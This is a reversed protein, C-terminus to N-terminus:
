KFSGYNVLIGSLTIYIHVFVGYTVSTTLIADGPQLTKAVSQIVANVGTTANQVFVM